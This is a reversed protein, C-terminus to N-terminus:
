SGWRDALLRHRAGKFACGLQSNARCAPNAVSFLWRSGCHQSSWVCWLWEGPSSGMEAGRRWCLFALLQSSEEKLQEQATVQRRNGEDPPALVCTFWGVSALVSRILEEHGLNTVMPSSETLTWGWMWYVTWIHDSSCLKVLRKLIFSPSTVGVKVFPLNPVGDRVLQQGWDLISNLTLRCLVM